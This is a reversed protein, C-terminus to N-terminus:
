ITTGIFSLQQSVVSIFPASSRRSHYLFLKKAAPPCAVDPTEAGGLHTGNWCNNM